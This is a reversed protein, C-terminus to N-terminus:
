DKCDMNKIHEQYDRVVRSIGPKSLDLVYANDSLDYLPSFFFKRALIDGEKSTTQAYIKALCRQPYQECWFELAKSLVKNLQQPHDPHVVISEALLTFNGVREYTEIEDPSITLEAREGKLISQITTEPLPVLSLYALVRERNSIDFSLLTIKPNKKYWSIYLGIDGVMEEKYVEYDLKLIAPLDSPKMWDVTTELKTIERTPTFPKMERALRDVDGKKYYGKRKNTPPTVKEIKGATVLRKLDEGAIGGLVERAQSATYFNSLEV